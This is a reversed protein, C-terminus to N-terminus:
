SLNRAFYCLKTAKAQVSFFYYHYKKFDTSAFEVVGGGGARWAGPRSLTLCVEDVTPSAM